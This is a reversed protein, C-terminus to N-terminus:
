HAYQRILADRVDQDTLQRTFLPAGNFPDFGVIRVKGSPAIVRAHSYQQILNAVTDPVKRDAM